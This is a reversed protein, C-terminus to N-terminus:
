KSHMVPRDTKSMQPQVMVSLENHAAWHIYMISEVHCYCKSKQCLRAIPLRCTKLLSFAEQARFHRCWCQEAISPLLCDCDMTYPMRYTLNISPFLWVEASKMVMKQRREGDSQSVPPHPWIRCRCASPFHSLPSSILEHLDQDQAPHTIWRDNFQSGARSASRASIDPNHVSIAPTLSSKSLM